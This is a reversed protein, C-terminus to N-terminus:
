RRLSDLCKDSCSLWMCAARPALRAETTYGRLEGGSPGGVMSIFSRNGEPGCCCFPLPCSLFHVTQFGITPRGLCHGLCLPSYDEGGETQPFLCWVKLTGSCCQVGVLDTMM